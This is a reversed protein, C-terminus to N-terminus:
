AAELAQKVASADMSKNQLLQRTLFGLDTRHETNNFPIKPENM